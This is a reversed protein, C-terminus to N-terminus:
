KIVSPHIDEPLEIVTQKSYNSHTYCFPSLSYFCNVENSCKVLLCHTFKDLLTTGSQSQLYAVGGGTTTTVNVGSMLMARVANWDNLLRELARRTFRVCLIVIM